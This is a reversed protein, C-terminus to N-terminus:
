TAASFPSSFNTGSVVDAVVVAVAYIKLLCYATPLCIDTKQKSSEAKRRRFIKDALLQFARKKM